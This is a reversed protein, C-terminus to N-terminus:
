VDKASTKGEKCAWDHTSWTIVSLLSRQEMFGGVTHRKVEAFEGSVAGVHGPNDTYSVVQRILLREADRFYPTGFM